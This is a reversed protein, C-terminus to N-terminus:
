LAWLKTFTLFLLLLVFVFFWSARKSGPRQKEDGIRMKSGFTGLPNSFGYYFNSLWSGVAFHCTHGINEMAMLTKGIIIKQMQHALTVEM